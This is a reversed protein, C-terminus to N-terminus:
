LEVGSELLNGIAYFLAEEVTKSLCMTNKFYRKTRDKCKLYLTAAFLNENPDFYIEQQYLGYEFLKNIVAYINKPDIYDPLPKATWEWIYPPDEEMMVGFDINEKLGMIKTAILLNIREKKDEIKLTPSYNIM